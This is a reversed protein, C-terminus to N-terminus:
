CACAAWVSQSLGGLITLFMGAPIHSQTKIVGVGRFAIWLCASLSVGVVTDIYSIPSLLQLGPCGSMATLMSVNPRCQM